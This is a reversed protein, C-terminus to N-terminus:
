NNSKPINDKIDTLNTAKETESMSHFGKIMESVKNNNNDSNSKANTTMANLREQNTPTIDGFFLNIYHVWLLYLYDREELKYWYKM